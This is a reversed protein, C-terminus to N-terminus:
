ILNFNTSEQIQTGLRESQTLESIRNRTLDILWELCYDPFEQYNYNPDNLEYLKAPIRIYDIKCTTIVQGPAPTIIINNGAIRSIPSDVKAKLFPNEKIAPLDEDGYFRNVVEVEQGCQIIISRDNLKTRYDDPLNGIHAFLPITFNIVKLKRLNDISIQRDDIGKLSGVQEPKLHADLLKEVERDFQLWIERDEFNSYVFSNLNQTNQNIRYIVESALM